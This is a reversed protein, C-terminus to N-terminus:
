QFERCKMQLRKNRETEELLRKILSGNEEKAQEELLNMEERRVAFSKETEVSKRQVADLAVERAAIDQKMRDIERRLAGREGTNNAACNAGEDACGAAARDSGENFIDGGAWTRVLEMRARELRDMEERMMGIVVGREEMQKKRAVLKGQQERKLLVCREQKALNMEDFNEKEGRKEEELKELRAVDAKVAEHRELLGEITKTQEDRTQKVKALKDEEMQLIERKEELLANVGTMEGAAELLFAEYAETELALQHKTEVHESEIKSVYQGISCDRLVLPGAVRHLLYDRSTTSSKDKTLSPDPFPPRDSLSTTASTYIGFRHLQGGAKSPHRSVAPADGASKTRSPVVPTVNNLFSTPTPRGQGGATPTSSAAVPVQKKAMQQFSGGVRRAPLFKQQARGANKRSGSRSQPGANNSRAPGSSEGPAGTGTPPPLVVGGVEADANVAEDEVGNYFTFLGGGAGGPVGATPPATVTSFDGGGFAPMELGAGEVDAITSYDNMRTLNYSVSYNLPLEEEQEVVSSSRHMDITAAEFTTAAATAPLTEQEADAHSM